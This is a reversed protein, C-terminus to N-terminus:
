EGYALVNMRDAFQSWTLRKSRQRKAGWWTMSGRGIQLDGIKEKNAFIELRLSTGAKTLNILGITAQVEHKRAAAKKRIAM